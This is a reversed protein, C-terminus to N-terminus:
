LATSQLKKLASTIFDKNLLQLESKDEIFREVDRRVVEFDIGELRELALDLFTDKNLPFDKGETQVIANNLFEFNPVIGKSAFWLFDYFDRGKTYRRFFCAHLKGAYLTPLDFHRIGIMFVKNIISWELNWGAPPSNDVEIKISVKQGSLPSLGLEKLLGEFKIFAIDVNGKSKFVTENNIGYLSIEKSLTQMLSDFAYEEKNILSFDLDESFRRLGFLFRLATGGLFAIQAFYGKDSLIKLILLQLFERLHNIKAEYSDLKAITQRVVDVM